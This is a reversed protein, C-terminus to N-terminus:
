KQDIMANLLGDGIQRENDIRIDIQNWQYLIRWGIAENEWKTWKSADRVLPGRILLFSNGIRKLALQERSLENTLDFPVVSDAFYCSRFCIIVIFNAPSSALAFAAKFAEIEPAFNEDDDDLWYKLVKPVNNPHPTFLWKAVAQGDSATANDDAPPFEIFFDDAYFFVVRLSPCDTLFSPAFQRLSHFVKASLEIGGINKAIIPCINRLILESIRDNNTHITLNIPCFSAFLQRFRYLFAIVANNIFTIIFRGFGMVKRPLQIQPIPLTKMEFNIIKMKKTGNGGIKHFIQMSKLAWKRTKFHVDVYFNFRHSILAIGLGLQSPPLLDFVALWGDGSIFIAKAMKEEAEKRNDSM